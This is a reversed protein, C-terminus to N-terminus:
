EEVLKLAHVTFDFGHNCADTLCDVFLTFRSSESILQDADKKRWRWHDRVGSPARIFEWVLL